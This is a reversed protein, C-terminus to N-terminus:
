QLLIKCPHPQANLSPGCWEPRRSLFGESKKPKVFPRYHEPRVLLQILNSNPGVRPLAAFLSQQLFLRYILKRRAFSYLCHKGSTRVELRVNIIDSGDPVMLITMRVGSVTGPIYGSAILQSFSQQASMFLPMFTSVWASKFGCFYNNRQFSVHSNDSYSFPIKKKKLFCSYVKIKFWILTPYSSTKSMECLSQKQYFHGWTLGCNWCSRWEYLFYHYNNGEYTQEVSPLLVSIFQTGSSSSHFLLM